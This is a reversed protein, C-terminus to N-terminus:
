RLWIDPAFADVHEVRERTIRLERFAALDRYVARSPVPSGDYELEVRKVVSGRHLLEVRALEDVSFHYHAEDGSPLRTLIRAAGAGDGSGGALVTGEGPRYIGLVGWLLHAPPLIDDPLGAPLRLETGELAAQAALEGNDLFLDLRALDPAQIRAVGRGGLRLGEESVRWGFTIQLTDRLATAEELRRSLGPVDAADVPSGASVAASACGSAAVFLLGSVPLIRRPRRRRVPAPPFFSRM